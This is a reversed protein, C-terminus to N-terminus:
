GSFEALRCGDVVFNALDSFNNNNNKKISYSFQISHGCSLPTNASIAARCNVRM